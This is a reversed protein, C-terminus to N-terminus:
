LLLFILPFSHNGWHVTLVIAQAHRKIKLVYKVKRVGVTIEKPQGVPALLVAKLM